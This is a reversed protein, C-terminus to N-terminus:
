RDGTRGSDAARLRAPFLFGAGWALHMLALALATASALRPRRLAGALAASLLAALWAAPVAAAAWLLGAALAPAAALLLGGALAMFLSAALLLVLAPAALQRARLSRPHRRLMTRKWRGYALYQRALAAPAARPRYAASLGDDYWVTGGRERLRWNLEYDQNRDLTEDYGGAEAVAARRFVGLFVTDVPGSPGGLRYRAGGNGLPHRTARAVAREFLTAGVARQRGGVCAAGTRRLTEVARSLYGPPLVCRADVRALIGHSAAAIARNMGAAATRGPNPVIRAAPLARRAARAPAPGESGDAVVVEVEGAYDQAAVSALAAPLFGADGRVPMLVSVGPPAAPDDSGGGPEDM